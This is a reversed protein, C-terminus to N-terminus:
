SGAFKVKGPPQWMQSTSISGRCGPHDLHHIEGRDVVDPRTMLGIITSPPLDLAAHRCPMPWASISFVM